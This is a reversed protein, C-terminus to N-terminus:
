SNLSRKEFRSRVSAPNVAGACPSTRKRTCYPALLLASPYRSSFGKAAFERSRCLRLWFDHFIGRFFACPSCPFSRKRPRLKKSNALSKVTLLVFRRSLNTSNTALNKGHYCDDRKKNKRCPTMVESQTDLSHEAAVQPNKTPRSELAARRLACRRKSRRPRLHPAKRRM